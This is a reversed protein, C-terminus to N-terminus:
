NPVDEIKQMVAPVTNSFKRGSFLLSKRGEAELLMERGEKMGESVAKDLTM